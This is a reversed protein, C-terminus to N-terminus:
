NDKDELKIIPNNSNAGILSEVRNRIKLLTLNLLKERCERDDSEEEGVYGVDSIMGEKKELLMNKAIISRAKGDKPRPLIMQLGPSTGFIRKRIFRKDKVFNGKPGDIDSELFIFRGNINGQDLIRDVFLLIKDFALQDAGLKQSEESVFLKPYQSHFFYDLAMKLTLILMPQVLIMWTKKNETKIEFYKMTESIMLFMKKKRGSDIQIPNVGGFIV